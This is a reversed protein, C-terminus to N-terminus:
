MLVVAEYARSVASVMLHVSGALSGAPGPYMRLSCLAVDFLAVLLSAVALLVHFCFSCRRAQLVTSVMLLAASVCQLLIGAAIM